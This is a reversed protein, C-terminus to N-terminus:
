GPPEGAHKLLRRIVQAPRLYDEYYQRANVELRRRYAPNQRIEELAERISQASGDVIHLHERHTLPAPLARTLPTSIVAKGLALFEALKWGHCGKVAPTNFAALSRQTRELYERLTYRQHFFHSSFEPMDARASFGGEFRLASQARCAEIFRARFANTEAERKWLSSAFFVYDEEPRGPAYQEVPLRYRRQRYYNAFHERTSTVRGACACFTQLARWAASPFGWRRVGFSPGAALIKGRGERPASAWDVNVKACADCWQLANEAFGAGDGASIYLRKQSSGERVRLALCHHHFAPFDARTFRVVASPLAEAIGQLYFSYYLANFM